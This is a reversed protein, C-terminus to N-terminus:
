DHAAAHSTGFSRALALRDVKGTELRPLAALVEVQRPAWTRPHAAAVFDRLEDLGPAPEATPEIAAVVRAGWEADPTALVVVDRVGPHDRIRREVLGLSVNVGGSVVVDDARGLVELRGDADLRGLDPTQLWGDRVVCGGAPVGVPEAADGSLDYGDYGDFLVPGALWIRGDPGVRVDIGALPEGDYVCGGCTETMGYTTVLSLGASVGRAVLDPAPAAGGLLIADLSALAATAAPDALWRYLQTPVLALYRRDAELAKIAAALTDHAGLEVVPADALRARVLVQLGAVYTVPLALVWGGPGGLREITATASARVARRSLLVDKPAATSGSTRISLASAAPDCLWDALLPEVAALGGAVPRLSPETVM